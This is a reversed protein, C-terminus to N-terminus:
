TQSKFEDFLYFVMFIKMKLFLMYKLVNNTRFNLISVKHHKNKNFMKNETTIERLKNYKRM